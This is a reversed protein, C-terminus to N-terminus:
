YFWRSAAVCFTVLFHDPRLVAKSDCEAGCDCHWPCQIVFFIFLIALFSCLNELNRNHSYKKYVKSKSELNKLIAHQMQHALVKIRIRIPRIHRHNASLSFIQFAQRVFTDNFLIKYFLQVQMM